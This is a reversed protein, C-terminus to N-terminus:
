IIFVGKFKHIKDILYDRHIKILFAISYTFGSLDSHGFFKIM